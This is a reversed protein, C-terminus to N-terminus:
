EAMELQCHKLFEVYSMAMVGASQFNHSHAATVDYDPGEVCVSLFKRGAVNLSCFEVQVRSQLKVQFRKKRVEMVECRCHHECLYAKLADMDQLRLDDDHHIQAFLRELESRGLPFDYTEKAAFATYGQLSEQPRKVELAQKRWKFNEAMGEVLLYSDTMESFSINDLSQRFLESSQILTAGKDAWFGRWEWTLPYDRKKGLPALKHSRAIAEPLGDAVLEALAASAGMVSQLRHMQTQVKSARKDEGDAQLLRTALALQLAWYENLTVKHQLLADFVKERCAADTKLTYSKLAFSWKLKSTDSRLLGREVLTDLVLTKLKPMADYFQSLVAEPSLASHSPISAFAEALYAKKLKVNARPWWEGEVEDLAGALLLDFALAGTLAYGLRIDAEETLTRHTNDLALLVLRETITEM